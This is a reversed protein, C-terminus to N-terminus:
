AHCIVSLILVSVTKSNRPRQRIQVHVPRPTVTAYRILACRCFSHAHEDWKLLIEMSVHGRCFALAFDCNRCRKENENWYKFTFLRPFFINYILSLLQTPKTQLSVITPMAEVAGFVRLMRLMKGSHRRLTNCGRVGSLIHLSQTSQNGRTWVSRRASYWLVEIPWSFGHCWGLVLWRKLDILIIKLTGILWDTLSFWDILWDFLCHKVGADISKILINKYIEKSWFTMGILQRFTQLHTM